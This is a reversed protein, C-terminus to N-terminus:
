GARIRVGRTKCWAWAGQLCQVTHSADSYVELQKEWVKPVAGACPIAM